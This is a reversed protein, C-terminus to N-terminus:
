GKIEEISMKSAKLPFRNKQEDVVVQFMQKLKKKSSQEENDIAKEKPQSGSKM